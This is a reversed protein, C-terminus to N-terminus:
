QVSVGWGGGGPCLVESYLSRERLCPVENYLSEGGGVLEPGLKNVQNDEVQHQCRTPVLARVTPLRATCMKSSHKTRSMNSSEILCRPFDASFKAFLPAAM